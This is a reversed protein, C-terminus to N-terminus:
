AQAWRIVLIFVIPISSTVSMAARAAPTGFAVIADVRMRLLAGAAVRLSEESDGRQRETTLNRGEIYGLGSLGEQLSEEIPVIAM